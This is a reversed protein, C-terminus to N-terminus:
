PVQLLFVISFLLPRVFITRQTWRLVCLSSSLLVISMLGIVEKRKEGKIEAQRVIELRNIVLFKQELLLTRYHVSRVWRGRRGRTSRWGGSRGCIVRERVSM